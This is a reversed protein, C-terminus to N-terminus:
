ALSARHENALKVWKQWHAGSTDIGHDNHLAAVAREPTNIYDLERYFAIDHVTQLAAFTRSNNHVIRPLRNPKEQVLVSIPGIFGMLYDDNPDLLWGIACHNGADDGYMCDNGDTCPKRQKVLMKIAYDCAEQVTCTDLDPKNM